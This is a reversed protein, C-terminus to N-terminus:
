SDGQDRIADLQRLLQPWDVLRRHGVVDLRPLGRGEVILFGGSEHPAVGDIHCINNSLRCALGARRYPFDDFVRLVTGSLLAGGAGGLSSLNEVARQSIRRRPVDEHTFLSADMAVPRWDLLRLDRLWGSMQGEMRGFDFAGTLELLDLRRFEVQAALAPLSGFPREVELDDVLIEGSFADMVIGGAFMLREEQYQVGPFRGALTGGLEVLGLERTLLKLSVPEIRADLVLQSPLEPLNLWALSDIAIAGDLMPMRFPQLLRLGVADAHLALASAGLPLGLVSAADWSLDTRVSEAEGRVDARLGFVAFRGGPDEVALDDLRLDAAQLTGSRWSLRGALAGGPALRGFGAAAAPGEVWRAWFDPMLVQLEDVDLAQLVWAADDRVLEASGVAVVSGPDSLAFRRLRIREPELGGPEPEIELEIELPAAPPPLYVAGLLLEGAEQRLALRARSGDDAVQLELGLDLGEAAFMGDFVDLLGDSWRASGSLMADRYILRAALRGDLLDLGLGALLSPPLRGLDLDDVDLRLEPGAAADQWQLAVRGAPSHWVLEHTRAPGSRIQVDTLTFPEMDEVDLRLQASECDPGHEGLRFVPCGLVLDLPPVSPGAVVREVEVQVAREGSTGLGYDMRLGAWSIGALSGPGSRLELASDALVAQPWLLLVALVKGIAARASYQRWSRKM